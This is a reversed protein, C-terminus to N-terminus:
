FLVAVRQSLHIHNESTTGEISINNSIKHPAGQHKSPSLICRLMIIQDNPKSQNSTAPTSRHERSQWSTQSRPMAGSILLWCAMCHSKCVSLSRMTLLGTLHRCHSARACTSTISHGWPVICGLGSQKLDKCGRSKLVTCGLCTPVRQDGPRPHSWSTSGPPTQPRAESGAGGPYAESPWRTHLSTASSETAAGQSSDSSSLEM